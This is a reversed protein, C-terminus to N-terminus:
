PLQGAAAVIERHCAVNELFSRRQRRDPIRAAHAQLRAYATDLIVRARPDGQASLLKYCTLYVQFPEETGELSGGAELYALIEDVTARAQESAGAMSGRLAPATGAQWLARSLGALSEVVLHQQGLTRRIDIAQRYVDIAATLRGLGVLGDALGSLAYGEFRRDGIERCLRLSEQFCDQGERYQDLANCIM